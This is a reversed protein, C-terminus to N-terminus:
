PCASGMGALGESGWANAASSPLDKRMEYQAVQTSPPPFRARTDPEQPVKCQRDIAKGPNPEIRHSPRTSEFTSPESVRFQRQDWAGDNPSGGPRWSDMCFIFRPTPHSFSPYLERPSTLLTPRLPLLSSM